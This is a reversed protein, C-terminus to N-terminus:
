TPKRKGHLYYPLLLILFGVILGIWPKYHHIFQKIAIMNKKCKYSFTPLVDRQSYIPHQSLVKNNPDKILIEGVKQGFVIPVELHDWVMDAHVKIEESPYYEVDIDDLLGSLVPQLGGEVFKSFSDHHRSFLRRKIKTENFASEFMSICSRYRQSMDECNLVVAICEGEMKEAAAIL